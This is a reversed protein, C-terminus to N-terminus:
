GRPLRSSRYPGCARRWSLALPIGDLRPLYGRHGIRKDDTVAFAPQVTLPASSL